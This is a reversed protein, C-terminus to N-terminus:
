LRDRRRRTLLARYMAALGRRLLPRARALEADIRAASHGLVNYFAQEVDVTPAVAETIDDERLCRLGRAAVEACFAALPHGGGVQGGGVADYEPTRFCDAVLIRGGPVIWRMALALGQELPVYQFSESFLAVDFLPRPALEEFRAEHVIAGPANERCRGALFPSPIVIEVEHGAAILKRATEGAGGGIDLIRLGSAKPLWSFLRETYAEQAAGLNAACPALGTWDGYHLNERGTLFRAFALGIDLGLAQSDIKGARRGGGAGKGSDM